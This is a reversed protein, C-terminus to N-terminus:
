NLHGSSKNEVVSAPKQQVLVEYLAKFNAIKERRILSTETKHGIAEAPFGYYDLGLQTAIFLTRPLHFQQTVVIADQVEFVASSRYMSDYTDIGAPDVFILSDPVNRKMLYNRMSNVEDYDSTRNDGSLLFRKVKGDRYLSLGTDVREQLIPSLKGDSHVSAGLIIVTNFQPLSDVHTYIRSHTQREIYSNLGIILLLGVGLVVLLFLFVKKLKKM